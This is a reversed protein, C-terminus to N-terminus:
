VRVVQRRLDAGEKAAVRRHRWLVRALPVRRHSQSCNFGPAEAALAPMRM